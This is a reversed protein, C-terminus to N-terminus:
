GQWAWATGTAEAVSGRDWQHDNQALFDSTVNFYRHALRRLSAQSYHSLDGVPDDWTTDVAYWEGDLRVLNWAHDETDGHARGRVTECEIGLMDMFLQFTRTYGLCIGKGYTLFGYPNDNEPSEEVWANDLAGPDYEAYAVMWDHIALEKEYVSMGDTVCQGIVETCKELVARNKDALGTADGSRWAALVADADYVDPVPEPEPEPEQEPEPDPKPTQEPEQEPDSDPEQEPQQDPDPTTEPEPDPDTTQEPEQEPDTTQEPDPTQEPDAAQEPDDPQEPEEKESQEPESDPAPTPDPEQEPQQDPEDAPPPTGDFCNLFAERAAGPDACIFLAAYRGNVEVAGNEVLAAAAPAYGTFDGERAELYAQLAKEAEAAGAEDAMALVAIEDAQTGGAAAVAADEVLAPSLGYVAELYATLDEEGGRLWHCNELGAQGEAAARVMQVASWDTEVPRAEEGCACLLLCLTALLCLCSKRMSTM